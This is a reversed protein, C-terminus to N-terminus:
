CCDSLRSRKRWGNGPGTRSRQRTDACVPLEFMLHAVWVGICRRRRIQAAIYLPLMAGPLDRPAARLRASVAPNFHAGSVSRLDPDARRSDRRDAAHQLAACARRERRCAAAGHHRLRGRGRAPVGHRAGGRLRTAALSPMLRSPPRPADRRRQPRDRAPTSAADATSAASRCRPSFRSAGICCGTPTRSRWRSKPPRATAEAPDPIGWHATM